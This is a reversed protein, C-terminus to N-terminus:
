GRGLHDDAPTTPRPVRRLLPPWRDRQRLHLRVVRRTAGGGIVLEGRRGGGAHGSRAAREARRIYIIERGGPSWTPRYGGGVSIQQRGEMEPFRQAYVEFLGSERSTYALWRGNPSIAPSYEHTPGQLLPEWVRDGDVSVMGMDRQTDAFEAHLFLTQGDPSWSGPVIDSVTGDISLLLEPPASGDAPQWFLEPRGNRDSRFVIRRGEPGWLPNTDIAADTTLRTLTGRALESIWIDMSGTSDRVALAAREGDPSVSMTVYQNAPAPLAEENGNRDVWVLRREAGVATGPIYALTGDAAVDYQVTGAADVRVGEVVPVPTGVVDLRDDDFPVAWLAGGRVFVLHGSDVVRGAAATPLLLRTDGSARDLIRLEGGDPEPTTLTFLVADGGDLVQPDWSFRQDDPTFIPQPEGGSGSVQM